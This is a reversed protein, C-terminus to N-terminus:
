GVVYAIYARDSAYAVYDDAYTYFAIAARESILRLKFDRAQSDVLRM